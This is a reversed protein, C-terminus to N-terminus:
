GTSDDASGGTTIKIGLRNESKTLKVQQHAQLTLSYGIIDAQIPLERGPREILVGLKVTAPRGYSFIENMAARVTRGTYLVDDILIVHRNEISVPLTSSKIQPNLGVRSFDDRYFSIDLTGLADPPDLQAHIQEAIWVGGTHIGILLPDPLNHSSIDGTMKAILAPIDVASTM